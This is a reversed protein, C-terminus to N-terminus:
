RLNHPTTAIAAVAFVFCRRAKESGTLLDGVSYQGHNGPVRHCDHLAKVSLIGRADKAFACGARRGSVRAGYERYFIGFDYIKLGLKLGDNASFEVM